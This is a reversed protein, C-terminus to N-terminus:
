KEFILVFDECDFDKDRAEEDTYSVFRIKKSLAFQLKEITEVLYYTNINGILMIDIIETSLGKALSGTLYIKNVEGLGQIVNQIIEDVGLHKQIMERVPNYLPHNENVRFLIKNSTRESILMKAELLRNLELRVANASENLENALARIHTKTESNLFFKLLIKVRTKSTIIIDLL